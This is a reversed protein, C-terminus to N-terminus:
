SSNRSRDAAMDILPRGVRGEELDSLAQNIEQLSYVNSILLGLPLKGSLFAEAYEPIDKDLDTEGGWTGILRKGRILDFPDISIMGGHPLNGAIVCIGGNNRVSLFAKEMTESHGAAEIACDVGQSGTFEMIAAVPDRESADVTFTAGLEKANELKNRNIDVAVISAVGVMKAALLASIGIGGLGFIALSTDKKASLTNLVIGAGTPIACGLLAAERLPMEDPIPCLRNECTVTRRMFTSVAGSNIKENDPGTYQTSPVDAGKGKIWSLVVHDGIKVKAVTEGIELVIGAGEHGLTHPVYKDPGRKGRVELLQSRCVGSYAVDVLVQGPKLEPIVLEEVRLPKGLEHLAAAKTTQAM